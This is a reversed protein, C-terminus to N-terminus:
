VSKEINGNQRWKGEVGQLEMYKRWEKLKANKETKGPMCGWIKFVKM